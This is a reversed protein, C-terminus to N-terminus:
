RKLDIQWTLHIEKLLNSTDMNTLALLVM